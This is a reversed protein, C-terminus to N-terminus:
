HENGTRYINFWSLVYRDAIPPTNGQHKKYM